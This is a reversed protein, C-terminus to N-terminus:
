GKISGVMMGKVFYKQAYPFAILIPLLVVMVMANQLNKPHMKANIIAEMRPDSASFASSLSEDSVVIRRLVLQLSFRNEDSQYILSNFWSNWHGVITFLAYTAILAKSLPLVIRFLITCESAGDILASERLSAPQGTFFTRFVVVTYAGVSGPVVMVWFTNLGKLKSIWLYTPITGGSFFMTITFFLTLWKRFVFNPVHLSYAVMATCIITILTGVAAYAITNAYARWLLRYGFIYKYGDLTFGRPFISVQNLTIMEPSSFSLALVHMLPYIWVACLLLLVAIIGMEFGDIRKRRM